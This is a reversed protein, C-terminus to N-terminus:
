KKKKKTFQLWKGKRQQEQEAELEVPLKKMYHPLLWGSWAILVGFVMIPWARWTLYGLNEYQALTLVLGLWGLVQTKILIAKTLPRVAKSGPWRKGIAIRMVWGGAIVLAFIILYVVREVGAVSGQLWSLQPQLSNLNFLAGLFLGLVAGVLVEAPTHGLVERLHLDPKQLRVKGENLSALVMNLAAAQEGSSRRVGFSDYMVIAAVVATLGFLHSGSGDLILATAALSCVVASHVSPMGGSAYLNRFDITGRFTAVTFKLLQTIAWVALPVIIYPNYTM